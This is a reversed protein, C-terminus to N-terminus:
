PQGDDTLTKRWRAMKTNEAPEGLKVPLVIAKFFILLVLSSTGWAGGIQAFFESFSAQRTLTKRGVFSGVNYFLTMVGVQDTAPIGAVQTSSMATSYIKKTKEHDAGATRPSFGGSEDSLDTELDMEFKVETM